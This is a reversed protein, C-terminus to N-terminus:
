MREPPSIGLLFLGKKLSISFAELLSILAGREEASQSKLIPVETYFRNFAKCMDYLANALISPKFHQCSQKVTENFDYLCRILEHTHPSQLKDLHDLSGEMGQEKCKSIVSRSRAYTYM